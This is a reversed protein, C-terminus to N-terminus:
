LLFPNEPPKESRPLFVSFISGRGYESEVYIKGQHLEILDKAISLGLGTGAINIVDTARFFRTFLKELDKEAIGIGSDRFQILTGDIEQSNYEGKYHDVAKIKISSNERSYKIANDILIRFIQGIKKDDGYLYIEKNMKVEITINKLNRRPELQNLATNILELPIYKVWELKIKKEDLRSITLLDETLEFLLSSNRSITELLKQKLGESIDKYDLINNTSQIIISIPTRLEHSVTSVFNKRYEDLEILKKKSDELNKYFRANLIALGLAKVILLTLNLYHEKYEPFTIGDFILVGFQNEKSGIGVVFGEDSETWTFDQRFNEIMEMIKKDEIHIESSSHIPGAKDDILPVYIINSPAFLMKFLKFFHDIVNEETMINSLYGLLDFVMAYDALQQEKSSLNVSLNSEKEMLRWDLIIKRLFLRFHDLGVPIIEFPLNVFEAFEQIDKIAKDNIETDLLLLKKITEGYFITAIEKDFGWEEMHTRWAELWGPTLIYSGEKISKDILDRNLIMYLCQEIEYLHCLKFEEPPEGLGIFCQGSLLYSKNCESNAKKLADIIKDWNMNLFVCKPPFPIVMVDTFGESEIIFKAERWFIECVLICLKSVM